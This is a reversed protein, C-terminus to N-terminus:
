RSVYVSVLVCIVLHLSVCLGVFASSQLQWFIKWHVDGRLFLCICRHWNAMGSYTCVSLCVWLLTFPIAYCKETTKWFYLLFTITRKFSGLIDFKTSSDGIPVSTCVSLCVSLWIYALVHVLALVGRMKKFVRGFLVMKWISVYAATCENLIHTIHKNISIDLKWM